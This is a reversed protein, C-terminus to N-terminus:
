RNSWVNPNSPAAWPLDADVLRVFQDSFFRRANAWVRPFEAVAFDARMVEVWPLWVSEQLMGRLYELYNEEHVDLRVLLWLTRKNQDHKGTAYGRTRLHWSLLEADDKLYATRQTTNTQILRKYSNQELSKLMSHNQVSMEHIQRITLLLAVAVVLLSAFQLWDSIKM